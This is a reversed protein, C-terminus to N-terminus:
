QPALNRDLCMFSFGGNYLAAAPLVSLLRAVAEPVMAGPGRKDVANLSAPPPRPSGTASIQGGANEQQLQQQANAPTPEPKYSVWKAMDPRPYREPHYSELSQFRRGGSRDDAVAKSQTAAAAAQSPAPNPIAGGSYIAKQASLGLETEGVHDIGLFSWREAVVNLTALPNKQDEPYAEARRTETKLVNALDGNETEYALLKAWVPKARQPPLAALAREFLARTNNDDNLHILFDLYHLIFDPAHPHEAPNFTKLGIEFVRGAVNADKNSYYEMLGAAVWVHYTCLPSKRAKTFILRAANISQARRSTRMYTVYVLALAEKIDQVDKKRREEVKEEVEQQRVKQKERERERREGDWDDAGSIDDGQQLSQLLSEREADYRKNIQDIEAELQTILKEFIKAIEAFDKKRSEELEAFSLNLLLSTPLTDAGTKLMTAAEETRGVSKLFMAADYHIEPYFRLMLLASRYAFTVRSIWGNKDELRLPNAKEWAIYKKWAALIQVHKETWSPPKAMWTRQAKEIPELLHKLERLATRATMYGASKESLFKKATLKNLGNEFTDYDKWLQEINTLPIWIARHYARRLSDMQQQDEYISTTEGSKIFNIYDSWIHGADKDNGVNQLVSEYAKLITNRSELKSEPPANSPSHIRRVYNVYARWLEVAPVSRLCRGFLAEVKNFARHKQEFDIYALWYKVATPFQELLGEYAERIGTEDGRGHAETLWATWAEVDWCNELARQRLKDVKETRHNRGAAQERSGSEADIPRGGRAPEASEGARASDHGKSTPATNQTGHTLVPTHPESSFDTTVPEGGVGQQAAANM